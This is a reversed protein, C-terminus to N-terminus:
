DGVGPREALLGDGAEGGEALHLVASTICGPMLIQFAPCLLLDSSTGPRFAPLRHVWGRRGRQGFAPPIPGQVERRRLPLNGQRGNTARGLGTCDAAWRFMSWVTRPAAM